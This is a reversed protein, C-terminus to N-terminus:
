EGEASMRDKAGHEEGLGRAAPGTTLQLLAEGECEPDHEHEPEDPANEFNPTTRVGNGFTVWIALRADDGSNDDGSGGGDHARQEGDEAETSCGKSRAELDPM